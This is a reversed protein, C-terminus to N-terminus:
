TDTTVDDWEQQMYRILWNLARHRERIIGEDVKDSTKGKLRLDIASWHLRYYLDAMDLIESKTRLRAKDVFASAGLDRMIEVDHAVDCIENAPKLQEIHGLAWLFVHACEYRWCYDVLEQRDPTKNNIFKAESPSFYQDASFRRVLDDVLKQDEGQTEGKVACLVVAVCREAVEKPTRDQVQAEDEIVPLKELCPLGMAKVVALSKDRRSLQANTPHPSDHTTRVIGKLESEKARTYKPTDPM